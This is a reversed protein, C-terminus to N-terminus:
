QGLETREYAVVAAIDADELQKWGPMQGRGDFVVQVHQAVTLDDAVVGALEPGIGGQGDGGHCTSCSARYIEEGDAPSAEEVLAVIAAQRAAGDDDGSGGDGDDSCGAVLALGLV